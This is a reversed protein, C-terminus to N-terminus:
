ATDKKTDLLKRKEIQKDSILIAVGAKKILM